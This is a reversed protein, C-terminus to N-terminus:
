VELRSFFEGGKANFYFPRRRLKGISVCLGSGYVAFTVSAVNTTTLTTNGITAASFKYGLRQDVEADMLGPELILADALTAWSTSYPM